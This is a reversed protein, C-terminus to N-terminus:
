VHLIRKTHIMVVASIAATEARLVVDGLSIDRFGALKAAQVENPSFDGEPGIAIVVAQELGQVQPLLPLHPSHCHAILATAHKDVVQLWPLFKALDTLEPIFPQASQKVAAILHAQAKQLNLQRKETHDTILPTIKHVGLETLKELVFQFRDANHLVGLAVHIPAGSRAHLTRTDIRVRCQKKDQHILTCTGTTGKGNTFRMTSGISARVVHVVHHMEAESLIHEDAETLEPIWVCHM